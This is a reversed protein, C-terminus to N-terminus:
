AHCVRPMRQMVIPIMCCCSKLSLEGLVHPSDALSQLIGARSVDYITRFPLAEPWMPSTAPEPSQELLRGVETSVVYSASPLQVLGLGLRQEALGQGYHPVVDILTIGADLATRVTEVAATDSSPMYMGGFPAAGLGLVSVSLGTRGLRRHEMLAHQAPEDTM